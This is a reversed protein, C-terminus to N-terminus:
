FMKYKHELETIMFSIFSSFNNDFYETTIDEQAMFLVFEKVIHEKIEERVRASHKYFFSDPIAKTIKDFYISVDDQTAGMILLYSDKESM